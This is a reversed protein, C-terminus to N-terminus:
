LVKKLGKEGFLGKGQAKKTSHGTGSHKRLAQSSLSCEIVVQKRAKKQAADGERGGKKDLWGFCFCNKKEWM